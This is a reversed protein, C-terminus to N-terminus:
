CACAYIAFAHQDREDPVGIAERCFFAHTVADRLFGETSHSPAESYIRVMQNVLTGISSLILFALLRM